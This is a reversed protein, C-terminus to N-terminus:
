SDIGPVNLYNRLSGPLSPNGTDRGINILPTGAGAIVTRHLPTEAGAATTRHLPTGAGATVTRRLPTETGVATTRHLPTGTGAATTRHLPTETGAAITRHLPAGAGATITAITKMEQLYTRIELFFLVCFKALKPEFKGTKKSKYYYNKYIRSLM